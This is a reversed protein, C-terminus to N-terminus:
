SGRAQAPTPEPASKSSVSGFNPKAIPPEAEGRFTNQLVSFIRPDMAAVVPTGTLISLALRKQYPLTIRLTPMQDVIQRTLEALREPYVERMVEADEISVTGQGVREEIGSPDEVGAVYRAWKRMELDSPQWRDPGIPIGGIDPRRPLKDALFEIRRAAITELQDAITPSLAAVGKLRDALDARAAERMVPKGTQDYETQSRVEAARAHFVDALRTSKAVNEAAAGPAFRVSTLVKTAVPISKAAGKEAASLFSSVAKGTRAAQESAAKGLRGFVKEGVFQSVKMGLYPAALAAGPIPLAAVAGTVAGFTAGEAMRQVGSVAANPGAKLAEKAAAAAELRASSEAGAAIPKSAELIRAQLARNKELLQPARELAALRKGGLDDLAYAAKLDDSHSIIQNLTHEHQQLADLARKPNEALAIPNKLTRAVAKEADMADRGLQNSTLRGEGRAPMKLDKTTAWQESDKIEQRLTRIDDAIVKRESVRAAEIAEAEVKNSAKLAEKETKIVDDLQKGDMRALDDTIGAAEHRAVQADIAGKAKGLGIEAVKGISGAVGGIGGGYLAHSSITSVARELTLPEDSLALESVGSGAGYIAGEAAGSLGAKGIRAIASGAEGARALNAAVVGGRILSGGGTPIATALTGVLELATSVGPNADRLNRVTEAEGLGSYVADSLGLTAGRLFAFGGAQVKGGIGGNEEDIREKTLRGYKEDPSELAFGKGLADQVDEEPVAITKGNAIMNVTGM